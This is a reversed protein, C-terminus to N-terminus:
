GRFVLILRTPETFSANLTMDSTLKTIKRSDDNLGVLSTLETNWVVGRTPLFEKNPNHIVIAVKGGAYSKNSYISASDLGALDPQGLIKGKNAYYNNWYHYYYPGINFEALSHFRKRLLVEGSAFSYRVNYFSSPKNDDKKTDNGLGYFNDLVTNFIQGNVLADYKGIRQNFEGTYKVQYAGTKFSLLSTIRQFTSYPAKRFAYTRYSYGAGAIFKDEENFGVSLLPLRYINYNYGSIDYNNVQPDSSIEISSKNSNQIYNTDPTYDYIKNRVNGKINFTDRGKGGIIRLKIKSDATSDIEFNDNGNLGYLNIYKTDPYKFIRDFIVDSTDANKKKVKYVKVELDKGANFLKFYEDVNSGLVNVEKSLFRYYKLGATSLLDRRSKLKAPISKKDLAYIKPPLQKVADAIVSDTENQQFTTIIRKWANEDLNNMFLRDFNREEWNFWKINYFHRKFGQLYPLAALSLSRVFLGDSNFYAQDRDRPIPYYLKGAGTDNTGFRWQDFHRDWDGIMMDLLRARLVSEQDIHNKSDKIIKDVIKATTKTDKIKTIGRMDDETPTPDVKELLCIKNAFVPQYFGLAPDDPVFYYTPSTHEIGAAEALPPITLAAYPHEASIMDRMINLPVTSKLQQAIVGEPDKDVTRLKWTKDNKDKLTLSKTQKGRGIGEITYGGNEKKIDFVKLHVPTAWEKRYNKGGFFKHIASVNLYGRNVPVTVSDEFSAIPVAEPIKTASDGPEKVISSFNFLNQSFPHGTSDKYVTYFDSRVNKNKSIELTAFGLSNAGYLLKKGHNLRTHKSGAGSVVYYYSSDKILQLTHEHGAVFIVNPYGKVHSDLANIMNKYAPYRLDEPTGFTGRALIYIFGIPIPIWLKPNIDILPFLLLKAPFYGGHIGYSRLTHHGALIVLKKSNNQLIADLESFFQEPTKFDCDSEIGPKTGPKRIFWQSDYMVLEIDNNISIAVPGPCGDEPYFHVNPNGSDNVYAGQRKVIATGGLAENAWDHNGPIFFVKAKTGKAINIQSDLISKLHNYGPMIEDPLGYNYLNDGLYIITTKDNLPILKKVADVVPERGFNLEGADGILIIRQQISDSQAVCCTRTASFCIIAIVIIKYM